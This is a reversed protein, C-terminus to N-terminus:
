NPSWQYPYNAPPEYSAASGKGDWYIPIYKVHGDMFCVNCRADTHVTKGTEHWSFPAWIGGDGVMVVKAVPEIVSLPQGTLGVTKGHDWFTGRPANYFYSTLGLDAALFYSKYNADGVDDPCALMNRNQIYLQLVTPYRWWVGQGKVLPLYAPLREDYDQAYLHFAM